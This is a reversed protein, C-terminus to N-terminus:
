HINIKSIISSKRSFRRVFNEKKEPSTDKTFSSSDPTIPPNSLKSSRSSNRRILDLKTPSRSKPPVPVQNKPAAKTQSSQPPTPLNKPQLAPSAPLKQPKATRFVQNIPKLYISALTGINLELEEVIEPDINDNESTILPNSVLLVEKTNSQFQDNSSANPSSILRWYIYARDRVDPNDIEETACKLVRLVVAEGEQPMKLYLRTAATLTAYQVVLPEEKFSSTLEQFIPIANDLTEGYQGLIWILSTKSDPEEILKHHKILENIAYNFRGPYKRLINKFVISAEQIIYPIGNSCLDCLVEVCEDAVSPLKVALNGFARISKRSMSIDVETAYEELERLVVHVNSENALLYIIELKTDKVYIPDDYHCFFSEIDFTVLKRNGVLLLIVNRLTLFQIEPSKTLLSSLASGLRSSLGPLILEPNKVYNSYYVIIKIANLVVASNEHQLSPIMAEILDLAEESTQPVYSMLSNLLYIQCWENTNSLYGILKLSHAKDITLSLSKSNEVVYGLAALSNSVVFPNGDYLLSNLDDILGSKQTREPDNEFLRSVSFAATKRVNADTDKLLTRVVVFTLDVYDRNSISSMTRIAITRLMPSSEQCFRKMFPIGDSAVPPNLHAYSSLYYCCMKRIELDNIKMLPIVDGMLNVLENNNLIINAVVKKLVVKVRGHPKTKKFAQELEVRLELSKSKSFSKGDSM